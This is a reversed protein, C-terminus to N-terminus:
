DNKGIKVSRVGLGQITVLKSDIGVSNEIWSMEYFRSWAMQTKNKNRFSQGRQNLLMSLINMWVPINSKKYNIKM